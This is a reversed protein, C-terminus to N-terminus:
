AGRWMKETDFIDYAKRAERLMLLYLPLMMAGCTSAVFAGSYGLNHLYTLRTM